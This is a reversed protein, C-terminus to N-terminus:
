SDSRVLKRIREFGALVMLVGAPFGVLMLAVDQEIAKQIGQISVGIGAGIEIIAVARSSGKRGFEKAILLVGATLLTLVLSIMVLIPGGADLNTVYDAFSQLRKWVEEVAVWAIGCAFVVWWLYLPYRLWDWSDGSKRMPEADEKGPPPEGDPIMPNWKM